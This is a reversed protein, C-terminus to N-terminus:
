LPNIKVWLSLTYAGGEDKLWTKTGSALDQIYSGTPHCMVCCNNRAVKSVSLINRNVDCVQATVMRRGSEGGDDRTLTGIFKKEGKNDIEAGNAVEYSQGRRSGWSEKQTM